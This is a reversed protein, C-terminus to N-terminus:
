DIASDPFEHHAKIYGHCFPIISETYLKLLEKIEDYDYESDTFSIRDDWVGRYVTWGEMKSLCTESDFTEITKNQNEKDFYIIRKKGDNINEWESIPYAKWKFANNEDLSLRVDYEIAMLSFENNTNEM